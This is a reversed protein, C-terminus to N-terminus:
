LLCPVKLLPYDLLRNHGQSTHRFNCPLVLISDRHELRVPQQQFCMDAPAKKLAM